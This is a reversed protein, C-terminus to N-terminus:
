EKYGTEKKWNDVREKLAIFSTKLLFGEQHLVLDLSYDEASEGTLTITVDELFYQKLMREKEEVHEKFGM